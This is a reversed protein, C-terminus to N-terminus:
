ARLIDVLFNQVEGIGLLLGEDDTFTAAVFREMRFHAGEEGMILSGLAFDELLSGDLHAITPELDGIGLADTRIPYQM